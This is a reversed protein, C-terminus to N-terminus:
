ALRVSRLWVRIGWRMLLLLILDRTVPVVIMQFTMYLQSRAYPCIPAIPSNEKLPMAADDAYVASTSSFIFSRVGHNMMSELRNLTKNVNNEYYDKPRSISDDVDTFAALHVVHEVKFSSFIISLASQDGFDAEIFEGSVVLERHGLSVDDLVVTKFGEDALMANVHSGIYGAGGTVLIM